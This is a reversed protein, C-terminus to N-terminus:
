VHARGIEPRGNVELIEAPKGLEETVLQNALEIVRRCAALDESPSECRVLAELAALERSMSAMRGSPENM